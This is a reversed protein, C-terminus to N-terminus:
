IALVPHQVLFYKKPNIQAFPCFGFLDKRFTVYFASSSMFLWVHLIFGILWQTCAVSLTILVM